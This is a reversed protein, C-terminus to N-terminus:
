SIMSNNTQKDVIIPNDIVMNVNNSVPPNIDMANDRVNSNVRSQKRDKFHTRVSISMLELGRRVSNTLSNDKNASNRNVMILSMCYPIMLIIIVFIMFLFPLLYYRRSAHEYWTMDVIFFTMFLSSLGIYLNLTSSLLEVLQKTEIDLVKNWAKHLSAHNITQIYHFHLGIQLSITQLTISILLLLAIPPYTIGFTLLLFVHTVYTISLGHVDYFKRVIIVADDSIANTNNAGIVEALTSLDSEQIPLTLRSIVGFTFATYYFLNANFHKLRQMNSNNKMWVMVCFQLVFIGILGFLLIYTPVYNTVIASSCQGSYIFPPAFTTTVTETFQVYYACLGQKTRFSCMQSSIQHVVTVPNPPKFRTQFCVIDVFMPVLIPLVVNNFLIVFTIVYFTSQLSELVPLVVNNNWFIKFIVLLLTAVIQISSSYYLLALVYLGNAISVVVMNALIYSLSLKTPKKIHVISQRILEVSEVHVNDFTRSHICVCLVYLGLLLLMIAVANGYGSMFCLSIIWGYQYEYTVSNFQYKMILYTSQLIVVIYATIVCCYHRFRSLILTINRISDNLSVCDEHWTLYQWGIIVLEKFNVIFEFKLQKIFLVSVVLLSALIVMSGCFYMYNNLTDSGCIYNNHGPDNHPMSVDNCHFINGELVNISAADTFSSPLLGSLRNRELNLTCTNETQNDTSLVYNNMNEINGSLFNFSLDLLQLQSATQSSLPITGHLRNYSLSIAQLKSNVPLDYLESVIGNGSLYLSNLNMNFICEPITGSIQKVMYNLYISGVIHKVSLGCLFGDALGTMELLQLSHANCVASSISGSFCNNAVVFTVLATNNFLADPITGSLGNNSVDLFVLRQISNPNVFGNLNGLLANSALICTGLSGLQTIESPITGDLANNQLNLQVLNSLSSIMSPISGILKNYSLDLYTLSKMQFLNTPISNEFLNNGFSLFSLATLQNIQLPISGTLCNNNVILSVLKVCQFLTVPVTKTLSNSELYMLRIKSFQGFSSPISGHLQNSGLDLYRLLTLLSIETPITGIFHNHDLALYSVLTLLGLESPIVGTFQNYDLFLNNIQLLQGMSSEISGSFANGGLNLYNLKTLSYIEPPILGQLDNEYVTIIMLDSLLGIATPISGIFKNLSLDFSILSNLLGLQTPIVGGFRNYSVNLYLLNTCSGILHSINGSLQNTGLLLSQLKTLLYIDTPITNTISNFSLSIMTLNTLLGICSPISDTIWNNNLYLGQLKLLSNMQTPIPGTLANYSLDLLTLNSLVGITTPISGKLLANNNLILDELEPLLIPMQAPITGNLNMNTLNLEMVVCSINADCNCLVGEWQELCPNVNPLAFNWHGVPTSWSWNWGNTENYLIELGSLEVISFSSNYAFCFGNWCIFLTWILFEFSIRVM